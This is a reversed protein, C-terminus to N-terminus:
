STCIFIYLSMNIYESGFKLLATMIMALGRFRPIRSICDLDPIRMFEFSTSHFCGIYIYIYMM